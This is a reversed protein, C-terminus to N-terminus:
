DFFYHRLGVASLSLEINMMVGFTDKTEL